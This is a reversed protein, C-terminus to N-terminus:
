RLPQLPGQASAQIRAMLARRQRVFSGFGESIGVDESAQLARELAADAEEMATAFGGLAWGALLADRGYLGGFRQVLHNLRGADFEQLVDISDDLLQSARTAADVLRVLAPLLDLRGLRALLAAPPVALPRSRLLVRDFADADYPPAGAAPGRLLDRELLMAAAYDQWTRDFFAWFAPDGGALRATVAQHRAFLAHALLATAHPDDDGLGEDLWDDHVRVSAYGVMGSEFADVLASREVGYAAAVALPLGIVPQSAADTYRDRDGTLWGQRRTLADFRARLGPGLSASVAALREDVAETIQSPTM